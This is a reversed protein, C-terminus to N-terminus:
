KKNDGGHKNILLKLIVTLYLTIIIYRWSAFCIVHYPHQFKVWAPLNIGFHREYQQSIFSSHMGVVWGCKHFVREGDALDVIKTFVGSVTRCSLVKFISQEIIKSHRNLITEVRGCKSLGQCM